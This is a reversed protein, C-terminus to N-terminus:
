INGLIKRFGVLALLGSGFLLMVGPEPVQAFDDFSTTGAAKHYITAQLTLLGSSSAFNSATTGSFAGPGFPGPASMPINGFITKFSVTGAATGGVMNTLVGATFPGAFQNTLTITLTGGKSNSVDVSNLDLEPASATGGIIGTSVNTKWNGVSGNFLIVGLTPDLDLVSGDAISVSTTGSSLNLIPVAHVTQVSMTFVVAFVIMIAFFLKKM